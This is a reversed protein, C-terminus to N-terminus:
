AALLHPSRPRSSDAANSSRGCRTRTLRTDGCLMFEDPRAMSGPESSRSRKRSVASTAASTAKMQAAGSRTAMPLTVTQGSM